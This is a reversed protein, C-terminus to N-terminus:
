YKIRRDDGIKKVVNHMTNDFEDSNLHNYENLFYETIPMGNFWHVGISDDTLLSLNNENYLLHLANADGNERLPPYAYVIDMGGVALKMNPHQNLIEANTSYHKNLLLAGCSQYEKINISKLAIKYLNQFLPNDSSALMFGILYSWLETPAKPNMLKILLTEVEDPTGQIMLKPLNLEEVPKFYLIDLDSWLGGDTGLLYWRLIDSKFIEPIDPPIDLENMDVIVNQVYPLSKLKSLYNINTYPIKHSHTDWMIPATKDVGSNYLKIEWNPNFKHFSVITLYHLYSLRNNDWYFHAIKPINKM